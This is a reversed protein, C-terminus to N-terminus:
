MEIPFICIEAKSRSARYRRAKYTVNNSNFEIKLFPNILNSFEHNTKSGM